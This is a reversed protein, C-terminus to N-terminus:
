MIHKTAERVSLPSLLDRRAAVFDRVWDPATRAYDRLAWGIAKRIFFDADAINPTIVETLLEPDTRTQHGVQCIISSRRLWKDPDRSWGRVIPRMSAPYELLLDGIRHSAEDVHDWWAGGVIMEKHLPLLALDVGSQKTRILAAAAYREERYTAERWLVAASAALVAASQDSQLRLQATVVSRVAPMTVGLHPMDSKMYAQMRPARVPDAAARLGARIADILQPTCGPTPVSAPRPRKDDIDM